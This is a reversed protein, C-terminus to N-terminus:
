IECVEFPGAHKEYKYRNDFWKSAESEDMLRSDVEWCEVDSYRWLWVEKTKKEIIPEWDNAIVDDYSFREKFPGVNNCDYLGETSYRQVKKSIKLAEILTM